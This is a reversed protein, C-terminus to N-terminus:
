VEYFSLFFFFLYSSSQYNLNVVIYDLPIQFHCM